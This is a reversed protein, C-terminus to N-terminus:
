LTRAFPVSWCAETQCGTLLSHESNYKLTAETEKRVTIDTLTSVHDLPKGNVQTFPSVLMDVWVCSGDPRRFRKEMSYQRITGSKFQEFLRLDKAFDPAFDRPTKTAFSPRLSLPAFVSHPQCVPAARRVRRPGRTRKHAGTLWETFSCTIRSVQHARRTM